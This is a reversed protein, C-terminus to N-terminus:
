TAGGARIGRFGVNSSGSDVAGKGRSGVLYRTCYEDSCLYSGGRQVRKPMGPEAPDFSDAPGKPNNAKQPLTSYYDPRYWDACWQWVNGGMDYLAFGNAPFADVPSTGRFGDAVTNAVPFSGQWINAAASGRPRLENGWAYRNRDLGGRAAFEFQAESPLDKGAWRLYAVADDWAVHVVPHNARGAINSKAGEPHRWSAGGVYQWWQMPNDLSAVREPPVFVASGPVLKSSPVGPFEKPDLPREAVTVYKTERVFREFEANTVPAADMWFGDVRVLHVPQTDPMGCDACGMWFTGGPVWVMGSPAPGPPQSPDIQVSLDATSAAPAVAHHAPDSPGAAPAPAVPKVSARWVAGGAILLALTVGLALISRHPM